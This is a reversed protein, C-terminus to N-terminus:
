LTKKQNHFWHQPQTGTTVDLDIFHTINGGKNPTGDVNRIIRPRDLPTLKLHHHKVFTPSLFNHTAGTDVLADAIPTEATHLFQVKM